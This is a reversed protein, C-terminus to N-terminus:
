LFMFYFSLLVVYLKTLCGSLPLFFFGFCCFEVVKKEGEKSLSVNIESDINEETSSKNKEDSIQDVKKM